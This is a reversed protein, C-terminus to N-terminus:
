RERGVEAPWKKDIRELIFGADEIALDVWYGVGGRAGGGSLGELVFVRAFSEGLGRM